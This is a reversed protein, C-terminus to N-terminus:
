RNCMISSRHWSEFGAMESCRWGLFQEALGKRGDGGALRVSLIYICTNYINGIYIYLMNEYMYTYIISYLWTIMYDHLWTIMYIYIYIHIHLLVDIWIGVYIYIYLMYIYIIIYLCAYLHSCTWSAEGAMGSGAARNKHGPGAKGPWWGQHKWPGIQEDDGARKTSCLM